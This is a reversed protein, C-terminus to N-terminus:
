KSIMKLAEEKKPFNPINLIASHIGLTGLQSEIVALKEFDLQTLEALQGSKKIKKSDLEIKEEFNSHLFATEVFMSLYIEVQEKESLADNKKSLLYKKAEESLAVRNFRMLTTLRQAEKKSDNEPLTAIIKEIERLGKKNKIEAIKDYDLQTLLSIKKIYTNQKEEKKNELDQISVVETAKKYSEEIQKQTSQSAKPSNFNETDKLFQSNNIIITTAVESKEKELEEKKSNEEIVEETKEKKNDCSLFISTSFIMFVLLPLISYKKFSTQM